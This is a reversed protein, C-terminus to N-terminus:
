RAPPTARTAEANRCQIARPAPLPNRPCASTSASTESPRWTGASDTPRSVITQYRTGANPAILQIVNPKDPARDRLARM